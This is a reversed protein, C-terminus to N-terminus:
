LARPPLLGSATAVAVAASRRDVDLVTFIATLHREVTRDSIALAEGIERNSLGAAVLRLVDIQRPTLSGDRPVHPSVMRRELLVHIPKGDAVDGVLLAEAVLAERTLSRGAGWSNRLADGGLAARIAAVTGRYDFLPYDAVQDVERIVEVGGLLRAAVAADGGEAFLRAIAEVAYVIDIWDDMEYYLALSERFLALAEQLRGVAALAAGEIYTAGALHQPNGIGRFQTVADSALPLASEVKGLVLLVEATNTAVVAMRDPDGVARFLALTREYFDLARALHGIRAAVEGLHSLILAKTATDDTGQALAWAEHFLRDAATQDGRLNTLRGLNLTSTAARGRDGIARGIALAAEHAEWAADLERQAALVLGLTDLARAEQDRASFERALEVAATLTQKAEGFRSALYQLNGLEILAAVRFANGAELAQALVRELWSCGEAYRGRLSWFPGLAAAVAMAEAISGAAITWELAVSINAYDRDIAALLSVQHPGRLGAGLERTLAAYYAAHRKAAMEAEGQAALLGRAFEGLSELLRYRAAGAGPDHEVVVMSQRALGDLLDLARPHEAIFEVAALDFWSVLVGLRRFLDAEAEALLDYSWAIASDLAQQRPSAVNARRLLAFRQDLRGAIQEMSLINARAAALEIALPLGDLRHCIEGITRTQAVDPALGPQHERARALFLAAADEGTLPQLPYVTEGPVALPIRSTALLRSAGGRHLLRSALEACAARLHECNDLILLLTQEQFAEAVREAATKRGAERLGLIRAVTQPLAEADLLAALDVFWVGDPWSGAGVRGSEVALRTKGAGAPGTITVLPKASLLTSVDDLAAARGLLPTFVAPLNGHRSPSLGRLAHLGEAEMQLLRDLMASRPLARDNEWRNVTVNSIDLIAALEIQSLGLRQRLAKIRAGSMQGDERM